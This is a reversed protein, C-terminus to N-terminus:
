LPYNKYNPYRTMFSQLLIEFKKRNDFKKCIIEILSAKIEQSFKKRLKSDHRAFAIAFIVHYVDENDEIDNKLVDVLHEKLLQGLDKEPDDMLQVEIVKRSLIDIADLSVIAGLERMDQNNLKHKILFDRLGGSVKSGEKHDLYKAGFEIYKKKLRFLKKFDQGPSEEYKIKFQVLLQVIDKGFLDKTIKQWHERKRKEKSKSIYAEAPIALISLLVWITLIRYDFNFLIAYPLWGLLLCGVIFNKVRETRNKADGILAMKKCGVMRLRDYATVDVILDGGDSLVELTWLVM